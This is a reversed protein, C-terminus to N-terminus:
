TSKRITKINKKIVTKYIVLSETARSINKHFKFNLIIKIIFDQLSAHFENIVLFTRKFADIIDQFIRKNNTFVLFHNTHFGKQKM